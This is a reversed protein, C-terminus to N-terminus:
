ESAEGKMGNRINKTMIEVSKKMIQTQEETLGQLLGFAFEKQALRGERVVGEAAETLKLHLSKRNGQQYFTQIYGRGTLNKLSMSVHSKTLRRRDVIDKATDYDPQNALFLLIDLENRTMAYADCVPQLSKDYMKKGLFLMDAIEQAHM